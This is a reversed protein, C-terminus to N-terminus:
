SLKSQSSTELSLILPSVLNVVYIQVPSSSERLIMLYSSAKRVHIAQGDPSLCCYRCVSRFSQWLRASLCYM